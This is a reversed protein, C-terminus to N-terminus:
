DDIFEIDEVTVSGNKLIANMAREIANKLEELNTAKIEGDISFKFSCKGTFIQSMKEEEETDILKLTLNISLLIAM